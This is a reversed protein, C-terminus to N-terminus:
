VTQEDVNGGLISNILTELESKKVYESMDPVQTAPKPTIEEFKFVRLTCMGINDCIKIYFIGDNESDFLPVKTNPNMRWSKAGEVGNVWNIDYQPMYPNQNIM